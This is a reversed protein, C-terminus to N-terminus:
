DTINSAYKMIQNQSFEERDLEGVIRGEAMVLMRDSMGMIEEMESSIMIIALGEDTLRNILEYIEQKAGVDIGRTPEDLILIKSESALWKAVAVKQQNGGSLNGVLQNISPTKIRLADKYKDVCKNEEKFNIFTMKSLERLIPLTINWRISMKLLVGQNKRDESVYAIGHQIADKPSHITVEKGDVMGGPGVAIVEATVPKEQAKAALIIGSKTTEEKASQKLVVRDGLPVLKM